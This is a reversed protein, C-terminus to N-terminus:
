RDWGSGDFEFDSLEHRNAAANLLDVIEPQKRFKLTEPYILDFVSAESVTKGVTLTEKIEGYLNSATVIAEVRFDDALPDAWGIIRYEYDYGHRFDECAIQVETSRGPEKLVVFEHKGPQAVPQFSRDRLMAPLLSLQRIRPGPPGSPSALVYRGNLWGGKASLRILLSEAPVQGINELRFVIEMQGFNLELKREYDLVFQPVVTSQWRKYRDTLTHDFDDTLPGFIRNHEM